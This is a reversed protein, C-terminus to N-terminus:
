DEIIETVDVGLMKAMRGVSKTTSSAKGPSLLVNFAPETVGYLKAAEKRSLCKRALLIDVKKADIKM